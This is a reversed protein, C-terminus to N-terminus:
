KDGDLLGQEAAMHLSADRLGKTYGLIYNEEAIPLFLDPVQSHVFEIMNLVSPEKDETKSRYEKILQKGMNTKTRFRALYKEKVEAHVEEISRTREPMKDLEAGENKKKM